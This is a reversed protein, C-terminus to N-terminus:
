LYELHKKIHVKEVQDVMPADLGFKDKLTGFLARLDDLYERITRPALNREVRLFIEFDALAQKASTKTMRPGM